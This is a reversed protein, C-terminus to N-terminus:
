DLFGVQSVSGIKRREGAWAVYGRMKGTYRALFIGGERRISGGFSHEVVGEPARYYYGTHDSSDLLYMGPRFHMTAIKQEKQLEIGRPPAVDPNIAKRPAACAALALALLLCALKHIM